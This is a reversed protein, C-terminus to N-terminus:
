STQWHRQLLAITRRIGEDPDGQGEFEVSFYGDFGVERFPQLCRAYDLTTEEGDPGFAYSKAHVLLAYPAMVALGEYRAEPAFNGFDPCARFNTRNVQEFLVRLRAPDSTFGGHNEVTVDMGLRAAYDALAQYSAVTPRMDDADNHGSNFRAAPCGLDAAIDLWRQSAQIAAQREDPDLASLNGTGDVALHIVRVGAEELATRLTRVYDPTTAAFFPNNLEIAQVDFQERVLKPVDTYPFGARIRERLSWTSIALKM